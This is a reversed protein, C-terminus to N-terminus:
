INAIDLLKQACVKDSMNEMVWKRPQFRERNNVWNIFVTEFDAIDTFFAGTEESLYPATSCAFTKGQYKHTENRWILTPVGVSWAEAWAIGQSESYSFGVMVDANRLNLLYEERTYEGYKIIQVNCGRRELIDVYEAISGVTNEYLKEFILVSLQVRSTPAIPVWYSTDVGAAWSVCRDNLIPRENVYMKRVWESPVICIDIESSTILADHESPFVLINPGALLKRIRGKRKLAIAQRLTSAGSLVVITDAIDNLFKPNYNADVDIISLGEVLSRTVSYHGRYASKSHHTPPRFKNKIKRLHHKAFESFFWRGVPIPDTLITIVPM